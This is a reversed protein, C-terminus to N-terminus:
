ELINGTIKAFIRGGDRFFDPLVSQRFVVCAFAEKIVGLVETGFSKATVFGVDAILYDEAADLASGTGGAVLVAFMEDFFVTVPDVPSRVDAVAAIFAASATRNRMLVAIVGKKCVTFVPFCETGGSFANIKGAFLEMLDVPYDGWEDHRALGGVLDEDVMRFETERDPCHVLVDFEAEEGPPVDVQLALYLEFGAFAMFGLYGVPFDEDASQVTIEQGERRCM